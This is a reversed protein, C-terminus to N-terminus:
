GVPAPLPVPISVADIHNMFAQVTGSETPITVRKLTYVIQAWLDLPVQVSCAHQAAQPEQATNIKMRKRM